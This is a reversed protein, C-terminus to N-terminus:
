LLDLLLFIAGIIFFIAGVYYVLSSHLMYGVLIILIGVVMFTLAKYLSLTKLAKKISKIKNIGSTVKEKLQDKVKAFFNSHTEVSITQVNSRNKVVSTAANVQGAFLFAFLVSLLMLKKM